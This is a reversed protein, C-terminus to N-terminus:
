EGRRLRKELLKIARDETLTGILLPLENYPTKYVKYVGRGYRTLLRAEKIISELDIQITETLSKMKEELLEHTFFVYRGYGSLVMVGGGAKINGGTGGKPGYPDKGIAVGYCSSKFRRNETWRHLVIKDDPNVTIM